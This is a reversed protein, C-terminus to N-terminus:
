QTCTVTKVISSLWNSNKILVLKLTATGANTCKYAVWIDQDNQTISGASRSVYQLIGPTGWQSVSAGFADVAKGRIWM